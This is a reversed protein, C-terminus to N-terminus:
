PQPTRKRSRSFEAPAQWWWLAPGEKLSVTLSHGQQLFARACFPRERRRKGQTVGAVASPRPSQHTRWCVERSYRVACRSAPRLGSLIHTKM